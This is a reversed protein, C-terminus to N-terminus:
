FILRSYPTATTTGIGVMGPGALVAIGDLAYLVRTRPAFIQWPNDFISAIEADSLARCWALQLYDRDLWENSASAFPGQSLIVLNGGTTATGVTTDSSSRSGNRFWSVTNGAVRSCVKTDIFSEILYNAETYQAVGHLFYTQCTLTGNNGGAIAQSRGWSWGANGSTCTSIMIRTGDALLYQSDKARWISMVTLNNGATDLGNPKFEAYAAGAVDSRMGTGGISNTYAGFVNIPSDNTVLNKFGSSPLLAFGLGRTIPNTWDIGVPYPPQVKWRIRQIRSAM